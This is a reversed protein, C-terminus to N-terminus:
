VAIIPNCMNYTIIIQHESSFITKDKLEFEFAPTPIPTPIPM